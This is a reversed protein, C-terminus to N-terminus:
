RGNSRLCGPHVSPSSLHDRHHRSNVEPYGYAPVPSVATGDDPGAAWDGTPWRGSAFAKLRAASGNLLNQDGPLSGSNDYQWFTWRSWRAPLAGADAPGHRAIWPARDAAFAASGGTRLNWWRATTHIM